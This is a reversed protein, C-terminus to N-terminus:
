SFFRLAGKVGKLSIGSESLLAQRLLSYARSGGLRGLTYYIWHRETDDSCRGLAKVLFDEVELASKGRKFHLILHDSVGADIVLGPQHLIDEPGTLFDFVVEAVRGLDNGAVYLKDALLPYREFIAEPSDFVVPLLRKQGLSNQLAMAAGLEAEPWPRGLFAQSLCLLVYRSRRLGENIGMTLSDGIALNREDIWFTLGKRELAAVLPLIYKKKDAGAHSIFLDFEASIPGDAGDTSVKTQM